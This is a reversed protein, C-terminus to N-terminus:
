LDCGKEVKIEDIELYIQKPAAVENEKIRISDFLEHKLLQSAQPRKDPNIQLMSQLIDLLQPSSKAFKHSLPKHKGKFSKKNPPISNLKM